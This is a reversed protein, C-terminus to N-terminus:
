CYNFLYFYILSFIFTIALIIFCFHSRVPCVALLSSIMCFTLFIISLFYCTCYVFYQHFISLIVTFNLLLVYCLNVCDSSSQFSIFFHMKWCYVWFPKYIYIRCINNSHHVFYNRLDENIALKMIYISHQTVLVWIRSLARVTVQYM